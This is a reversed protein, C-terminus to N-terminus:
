THSVITKKLYPKSKRSSLPRASRRAWGLEPCLRHGRSGQGSSGKAVGRHRSSARACGRARSTGRSPSNSRKILVAIESVATSFVGVGAAQLTVALPPQCHQVQIQRPLYGWRAGEGDESQLHTGHSAQVAQRQPSM